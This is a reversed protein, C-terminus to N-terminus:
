SAKVMAQIFCGRTHDVAVGGQPMWGQEIWQQVARALIERDWEQVIRYKM